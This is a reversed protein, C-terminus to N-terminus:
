RKYAIEEYNYVNLSYPVAKEANFVVPFYFFVHMM